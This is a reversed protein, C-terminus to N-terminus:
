GTCGGSFYEVNDVDPLDQRIYCTLKEQIEHVFSSIMRCLASHELDDSMFCFSWCRLKEDEKYYLVVPHLICVQTSWHFSQVEDQVLFIYNEAFDGIAIVINSGIEEKRRQLYKSQCKATYSHPTLTDLKELLSTLLSM